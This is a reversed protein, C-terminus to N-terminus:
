SSLVIDDQAFDTMGRLPVVALSPDICEWGAFQFCDRGLARGARLELHNGAFIARIM